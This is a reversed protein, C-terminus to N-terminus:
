PWGVVGDPIRPGPDSLGLGSCLLPAPKGWARM